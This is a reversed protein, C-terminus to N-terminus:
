EVIINYLFQATGLHFLIRYTGSATGQPVTVTVNVTQVSGPDLSGAGSVNWQSATNNYEDNNKSMSAVTLIGNVTSTYNVIFTLTVAENQTDIIRSGSILAAYLAYESSTVTLTPSTVLVISNKLPYTDSLYGTCLDIQLKYTGAPLGNLTFSCTGNTIGTFSAFGAYITTPVTNTNLMLSSGDPFDIATGDEDLLSLALLYDDEILDSVNVIATLQKEGGSSSTLSLIGEPSVASTRTVTVTTNALTKSDQSLSITLADTATANSPFEVCLQYQVLSYDNHNPNEFTKNTDTGMQLFDNSVINLTSENTTIYYNYRKTDSYSDYLTIM